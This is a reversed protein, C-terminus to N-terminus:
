RVFRRIQYWGLSEDDGSGMSAWVRCGVQSRAGVTSGQTGDSTPVPGACPTWPSTRLSALLGGAPPTRPPRLEGRFVPPTRPVSDGATARATLGSCVEVSSETNQRHLAGSTRALSRGFPVHGRLRRFSGQQRGGPLRWDAEIFATPRRPQFSGVTATVEFRVDGPKLAGEAGEPCRGGPPPPRVELARLPAHTPGPLRGEAELCLPPPSPAPRQFGATATVEFRFAGLQHGM